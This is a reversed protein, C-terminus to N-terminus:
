STPFSLKKSFYAIPHGNQGLVAGVGTSSADTELTFPKSFDPLCLITIAHELKDFTEQTTSSWKFVDKKLLDTLPGAIRACAKISRKHYGTLGLFGRLKKLNTPPWALVDKIKNADM